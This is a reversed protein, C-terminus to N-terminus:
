VTCGSDLLDLEEPDPARHSNNIYDLVGCNYRAWTSLPTVVGAKNYVWSSHEALSDAALRETLLYDGPGGV